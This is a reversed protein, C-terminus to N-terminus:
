GMFQLPTTIVAFASFLWLKILQWLTSERDTKRIPDVYRLSGDATREFRAKVAAPTDGSGSTAPQEHGWEGIVSYAPAIRKTRDDASSPGTGPDARRGDTSNDQYVTPIGGFDHM